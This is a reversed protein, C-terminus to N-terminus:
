RVCYEILALAGHLVAQSDLTAFRIDLTDAPRPHQLHSRVTRELEERPYGAMRPIGGGILIMDPELLTVATAITWAQLLIIEDIAEHLNSHDRREFVHEIPVGSSNALAILTHGGAYAEVCDLNGCMCRKGRGLVPIHGAQLSSAGQRFPNGDRLYAAGIGTGFYLGLVANCQQAPGSRWEGLLQLMIDQELLVSCGLYQALNRRLGVGELQPVNNCHELTDNAHDLIGPIGIVVVGPKLAHHTAHDQILHALASVADNVRLSHSDFIEITDMPEGQRLHGVRIRTGGMDVVVIDSLAASVPLDHLRQMALQQTTPPKSM